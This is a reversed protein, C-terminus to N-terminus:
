TGLLISIEHRPVTTKKYWAIGNTMNTGGGQLHDNKTDIKPPLFWNLNYMVM